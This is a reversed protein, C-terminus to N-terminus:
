EEGSAAAEETKAAAAAETEEALKWQELLHRALAENGGAEEAEAPVATLGAADFLFKAPLYNGKRAEDIVAETIEPSNESVQRVLERRAEQVTVPSKAALAKKKKPSGPKRKKNSKKREM